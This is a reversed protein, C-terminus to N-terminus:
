KKPAKVEGKGWYESTRRTHSPPEHGETHTRRAVHASKARIYKRPMLVMDKRATQAVETTLVRRNDEPLLMHCSTLNATLKAKNSIIFLPSQEYKQFIQRIRCDAAERSSEPQRPKQASVIGYNTFIHQSERKGAQRTQNLKHRKSSYFKHALSKSILSSEPRHLIPNSTNSLSTDQWCLSLKSCLQRFLKKDTQKSPQM